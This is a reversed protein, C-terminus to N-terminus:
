VFQGLGPVAGVIQGVLDEGARERAYAFLEKGLAQMQGMDLGAGTLEGALAMLGGGGAIGMAEGSTASATSAILEDAGPLAAVLQGVELQPGEKKLFTLVLGIARTATEADLGTAATIRAVLEEM